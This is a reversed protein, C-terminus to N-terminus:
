IKKWVVGNETFCAVEHHNLKTRLPSNLLSINANPNHLVFAEKAYDNIVVIASIYTKGTRNLMANKRSIEKIEGSENVMFEAIGLMAAKIEVYFLLDRTEFPRADYLVIICPSGTVGYSKFQECASTICNRVRRSNVSYTESLGSDISNLIAQEDENSELEKVEWYSKETGISVLYDPTKEYPVSSEPIREFAIGFKELIEELLSESKTV